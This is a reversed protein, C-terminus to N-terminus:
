ISNDKKIKEELYLVRNESELYKIKYKLYKSYYGGKNKRRRKKSSSSNGSVSSTDSGNSPKRTKIPSTYKRAKSIKHLIPLGSHNNVNTTKTPSSKKIPSRSRPINPAVTNTPLYNNVSPLIRIPTFNPVFFTPKFQIVNIPYNWTIIYPPNTAGKILDFHKTITVAISSSLPNLTPPIRNINMLIPKPYISLIEADILKCVFVYIKKGDSTLSIDYLRKKDINLNLTNLLRTASNLAADDNNGAVVGDAQTIKTHPFTYKGESPYTVLNIDKDVLIVIVDPADTSSM